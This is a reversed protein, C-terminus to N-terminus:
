CYSDNFNLSAVKLRTCEWEINTMTFVTSEREINTMTFVTSKDKEEQTLKWKKNERCRTYIRRMRGCELTRTRLKWYCTDFVKWRIVALEMKQQVTSYKLCNTNVAECHPPELKRETSFM